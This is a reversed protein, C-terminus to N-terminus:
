KEKGKPARQSLEKVQAELVTLRQEFKRFRNEEAVKRQTENMANMLEDPKPEAM